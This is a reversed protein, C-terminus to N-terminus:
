KRERVMAELKENQYRKIYDEVTTSKQNDQIIIPMIWRKVNGNEHNEVLMKHDLGIFGGYYPVKQCLDAFRKGGVQETGYYIPDVYSLQSLTEGGILTMVFHNSDDPVIQSYKQLTDAYIHVHGDKEKKYDPKLDREDDAEKSLYYSGEVKLVGNDGCSGYLLAVQHQKGMEYGDLLSEIVEFDEEKDIVLYSYNM